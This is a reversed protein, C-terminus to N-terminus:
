RQKLPNVSRQVAELISIPISLCLFAACSKANKKEHCPLYSIPITIAILRTATRPTASYHAMYRLTRYFNFQLSFGNANLLIIDLLRCQLASLPTLASLLAQRWCRGSSWFAADTRPELCTSLCTLRRLRLWLVTLVLVGVVGDGVSWQFFCVIDEDM